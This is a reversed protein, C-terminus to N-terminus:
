VGGKEIWPSGDSEIEQAVRLQSRQDCRLPVGTLDHDESYRIALGQGSLRERRRRAGKVAKSRCLEAVTRSEIKRRGSASVRPLKM